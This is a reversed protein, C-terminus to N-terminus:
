LLLFYDISKLSLLPHIFFTLTSFPFPSIIHHYKLKLCINLFKLHLMHRQLNCGFREKVCLSTCLCTIFSTLYLYACCLWKRQQPAKWHAKCRNTIKLIHSLMGSISLYGSTQASIDCWSCISICTERVRILLLPVKTIFNFAATSDFHGSGVRTSPM